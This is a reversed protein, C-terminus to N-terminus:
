DVLTLVRVTPPLPTSLSVYGISGKTSAVYEIVEADSSRVKPPRVGQSMKRRWLEHIAEVSENLVYESFQARVPSRLSQDVPRVRGGSGWNPSEMLFISSLVARRIQTGEVEPHVIVQFTPEAAAAPSAGAVSVLLLLSLVATAVRRM